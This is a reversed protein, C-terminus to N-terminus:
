KLKEKTIVIAVILPTKEQWSADKYIMRYGNGDCKPCVMKGSM